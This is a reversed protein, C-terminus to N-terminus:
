YRFMEATWDWKLPKGDHGDWTAKGKFKDGSTLSGLFYVPGMPNGNLEGPIDFSLQNSSFSWHTSEPKRDSAFSSKKDSAFIIRGSRLFVVTFQSPIYWDKSNRVVWSTGVLQEDVTNTLPIGLDTIPPPPPPAKEYFFDTGKFLTIVAATVELLLATFLVNLYKSEIAIKKVVGLLTIAATATFISTFIFFLTLKM